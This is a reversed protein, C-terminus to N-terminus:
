RSKWDMQNRTIVHVLLQLNLRRYYFADSEPMVAINCSGSAGSESAGSESEKAVIQWTVDELSYNKTQKAHIWRLGM